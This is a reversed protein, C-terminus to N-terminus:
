SVEVTATMYNHIDCQYKYTGPKAFTFSFTKGKGFHASDFSAPDGKVSTVTHDASDNNTWTVKTGAKVKLTESGFKFGKIEVANSGSSGSPKAGEGKPAATTAAKDTSKTSDASKKDSKGCGTLLVLLVATTAVTRKITM